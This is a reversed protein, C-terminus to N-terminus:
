RDGAAFGDVASIVAQVQETTLEPYMPLSLIEGALRETVPFAGSRYGLDAYAPQQHRRFWKMAFSVLLVVLGIQLLLGFMSALGGLGGFFGNGFLMGLLGAGFLGAMLGTGFGFGRAADGVEPLISWDIGAQFKTSLTVEAITAQIMVQRQGSEVASDVLQQVQRHQAATARVFPSLSPATLGAVVIGAAKLLDRRTHGTHAAAAVGPAEAVTIAM